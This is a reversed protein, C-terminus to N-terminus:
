AVSSSTRWASTILPWLSTASSLATCVSFSAFSSRTRRIPMSGGTGISCIANLSENGTVAGANSRSVRSTSASAWFGDSRESRARPLAAVHFTRAALDSNRGVSETCAPQLPKVWCNVM